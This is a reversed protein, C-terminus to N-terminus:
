IIHQCKDLGYIIEIHGHMQQHFSLERELHMITINSPQFEYFPVM